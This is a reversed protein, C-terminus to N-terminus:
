HIPIFAPYEKQIKLRSDILVIQIKSGISFWREKIM